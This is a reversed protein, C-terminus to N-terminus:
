LFLGAVSKPIFWTPIVLTNKGLESVGSNHPLVGRKAFDSKKDERPHYRGGLHGDLASFFVWSAAGVALIV